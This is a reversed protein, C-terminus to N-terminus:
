RTGTKHVYNINDQKAWVTDGGNIVVFDPLPPLKMATQDYDCPLCQSQETIRQGAKHTVESLSEASGLDLSELAPLYLFGDLKWRCGQACHKTKEAKM